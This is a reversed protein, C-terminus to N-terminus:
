IARMREIKEETDEVTKMVLPSIEAIAKPIFYIDGGADNTIVGLGFYSDTEECIDMAASFKSIYNNDQDVPVCELDEVKEVVFVNGGLQPGLWGVYPVYRSIANNIEIPMEKFERTHTYTKM